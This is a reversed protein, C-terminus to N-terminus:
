MTAAVGPSQAVWVNTKAAGGASVGLRQRMLHGYTAGNAKCGNNLKAPDAAFNFHYKSAKAAALFDPSAIYDKISQDDIGNGCMSLVQDLPSVIKNTLDSIKDQIM